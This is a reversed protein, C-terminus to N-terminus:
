PARAAGCQYPDEGRDLGGQPMQWAHTADVHEPGDIRRGIFVRGDRNLVTLASARAIPCTKSAPM